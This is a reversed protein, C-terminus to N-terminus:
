QELSVEFVRDLGTRALRDRHVANQTVLRVTGGSERHRRLAVITASLAEDDLSALRDLGIILM